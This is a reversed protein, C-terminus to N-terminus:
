PGLSRLRSGSRARDWEAVRAPRGQDDLTAIVVRRGESHRLFIEVSDDDVHVQAVPQAERGRLQIRTSSEMACIMGQRWASAMVSFAYTRDADARIGRPGSGRIGVQLHRNPGM